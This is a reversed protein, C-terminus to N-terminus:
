EPPLRSGRLPSIDYGRATGPTITLGVIAPQLDAFFPKIGCIVNMM